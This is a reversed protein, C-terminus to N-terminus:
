LCRHRPGLRRRRLSPYPRCPQAEIGPTGIRRGNRADAPQPQVAVVGDRLVDERAYVGDGPAIRRRRPPVVLAYGCFLDRRQLSPLRPRCRRRRRLRRYRRRLGPPSSPTSREAITDGRAGGSRVTVSTRRVRHAGATGGDDGGDYGVVFGDFRRSARSGPVDSSRPDSKAHQREPDPCFEHGRGYRHRRCSRSSRAPLRSHVVTM